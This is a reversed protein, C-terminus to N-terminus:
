AHHYRHPVFPLATRAVPVPRGRLMGHIASTGGAHDARLYGMAVPRGLSPSFAGSSIRGIPADGADFLETGARLPARGDPRLGVRRMAPGEIHERELVGAGPFGGAREGGPRRVAPWTWGLGADLVTTNEDIDQGYLCLGAELRLSDRAGLGIWEVGPRAILKRAFGCAAAAPLAIEFGDEGTYGSRSVRFHVDGGDIKRVSQFPLTVLREALSAVADVAEPGQVALLALDDLPAVTCMGALKNSLHALVVTTRSANVVLVLEDGTNAIMIDDIIGGQANTLLAYRQRGVPLGLVDAPTLTELAQARQEGRLAIQGMHSIDFLGARARTHLHEHLIGDPYRLPMRWGAFDTFVAGAAEHLAHLPTMMGPTDNM